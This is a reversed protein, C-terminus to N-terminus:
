KMGWVLQGLVTLLEGTCPLRGMNCSLLRQFVEPQTGLSHIVREAIKPFRNLALTAHTVVYYPRVIQTYARAYAALDRESLVAWPRRLPEGITDCLVSAEALALSVGEGTIADLYGAADGILAIGDAIPSVSRQHLPGAGQAAEIPESKGINAKVTPFLNLFADFGVEAHTRNEDWLFAVEVSDPSCPTIYAEVGTAWHVEVYASWPRTSFHRRIGWRRNSTSERQLGAWRRVQSHLGDAGIVLRTRFRVENELTVIMADGARQLSIARVGEIVRLMPEQAARARLAGSLTIRRIGWGVGEAFEGTATRGSAAIYRIGKFPYFSGSPLLEDIRISRLFDVGSPMVGEGCVKDVPYTRREIVIVSVGSGALAIGAGLGAPGGGVIVVDAHDPYAM